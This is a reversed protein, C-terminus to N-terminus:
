TWLHASVFLSVLHVIAGGQQYESVLPGRPLAVPVEMDLKVLGRIQRLAWSAGKSTKVLHLARIKKIAM